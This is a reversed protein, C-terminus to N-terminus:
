DVELEFGHVINQQVGVREKLGQLFKVNSKLVNVKNVLKMKLNSEREILGNIGVSVDKAPYNLVKRVEKSIRLSNLHIYDDAALNSKIKKIINKHVTKPSERVMYYLPYGVVFGISSVIVVKPLKVVAGVGTFISIIRPGYLLLVSSISTKFFNSSLISSFTLDESKLKTLVNLNTFSFISQVNKLFGLISDFDILDLPEFNINIQNKLQYDKKHSYMSEPKFKHEALKDDGLVKKGLNRIDQIGHLTQLRAFDEADEISSLIDHVVKLKTAQIFQDLNFITVSSDVKEVKSFDEIVQNIRGRTNEYVKDSCTDIMTMIKENVKVSTKVIEDYKPKIENLERSLEERNSNYTEINMDILLLTEKFIKTLYNKAPLLKSVSRKDLVFNRLSAELRDFNPNHIPEDDNNDDPGDGGGPGDGSSTGKLIENSSVFHVFDDSDKHIEPSLDGVQQMIKEICKDKRKISDFKNVVIFTFKKDTNVNSIFERGSLTFHNEANVVFIVLDIEEQRSFLQMTQYSDLNLGPADILRIDIIGNKLLSEEVPRNDNIYVKLLSYKDNEYVLDELKKIPFKNYTNEDKLNYKSGIPIAHVEEISNNEQYNIIECFVNTCPQQDVPMVNRRLLANCFSSKGSNLDGTILVKSSIDDIRAKLNKLHHLIQSFKEDLLMSITSDDLNTILSDTSKMGMKLDLKLIDFQLRNSKGEEQLLLARKSSNSNLKSDYGNSVMQDIPYHIPSNINNEKFESFMAITSNIARDLLIKNQNYKLQKVHAVSSDEYRGNNVDPRNAEGSEGDNLTTGELSGTQPIYNAIAPSSKNEQFGNTSGNFLTKDDMLDENEADYAYNESYSMDMDISELRDKDESMSTYKCDRNIVTTLTCLPFFMTCFPTIILLSRKLMWIKLNEIGKLVTIKKVQFKEWRIWKM